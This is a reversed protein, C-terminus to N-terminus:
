DQKVEVSLVLVILSPSGLVDVEVQVCSGLESFLSGESQYSRERLCASYVVCRTNSRESKALNSRGRLCASYVVCRTNSRESETM